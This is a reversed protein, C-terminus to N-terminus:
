SSQLLEFAKTSSCVRWKDEFHIKRSITYGYVKPSNLPLPEWVTITKNEQSLNTSQTEHPLIKQTYKIESNINFALTKATNDTRTQVNLGWCCHHTNTRVDNRWAHINISASNGAWIQRETAQEKSPHCFKLPRRFYQATIPIAKDETEDILTCNEM